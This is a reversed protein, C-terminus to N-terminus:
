TSLRRGLETEVSDPHILASDPGTSTSDEGEKESRNRKITQGISLLMMFITVILLVSYLGLPSLYPYFMRVLNDLLDQNFGRSFYIL